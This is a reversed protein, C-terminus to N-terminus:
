TTQKSNVLPKVKEGLLEVSRMFTTHPLLASDIQFSFRSIGGLVESHRLIKKAVEEPGGVVLAGRQGSQAHYHELTVPPWGREKDIETFLKAYGHYFKKHAEESTEAVFGLSHLGVKLQEPKFGAKEGAERYLDILPNFGFEV